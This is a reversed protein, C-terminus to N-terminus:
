SRRCLNCHGAHYRGTDHQGTNHQGPNFGGRGLRHARCGYRGDFERLREYRQGRHRGLGLRHRAPEVHRHAFREAIDCIRQLPLKSLDCFVVATPGLGELNATVEGCPLLPVEGPLLDAFPHGHKLENM